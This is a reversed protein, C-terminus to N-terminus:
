DGAGDSLGDGFDESSEDIDIGYDGLVGSYAACPREDRVESGASHRAAGALLSEEGGSASLSQLVEVEGGAGCGTHGVSFHGVSLGSVFFAAGSNHSSESSEIHDVFAGTHM